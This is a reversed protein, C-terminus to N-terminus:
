LKRVIGFYLGTEADIIFTDDPPSAIPYSYTPIPDGNFGRCAVLSFTLM